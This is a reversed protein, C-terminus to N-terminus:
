FQDVGFPLMLGQRRANLTCFAKLCEDGTGATRHGHNEDRTQPQLCAHAPEDGHQRAEAHADPLADSPISSRQRRIRMKDPDRDLRQQM